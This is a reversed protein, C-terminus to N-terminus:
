IARNNRDEFSISFFDHFNNIFSLLFEFFFVILKTSQEFIINQLSRFISYMKDNSEWSLNSSGFASEFDPETSFGGSLGLTVPGLYLNTGLIPMTRSERPQQAIIQETNGSASFDIFTDITRLDAEM